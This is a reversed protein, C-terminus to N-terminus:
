QDGRMSGAIEDDPDSRQRGEDQQPL